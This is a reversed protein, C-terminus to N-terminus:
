KTELELAPIFNFSQTDVLGLDSIRLEPIVVLGSLSLQMNPNNLTCGCARFGDLITEAQRSVEPAPQNSMLGAIPLEVLGIVEGQRVVVQGGNVRALTNVALAMDADQTGAVIMHHSDHAVTTAVACPVNFGFGSVLGVQVRGSAQHREVVAIKALDRSIDARVEGDTVLMQLRLHRNPAQNELIGIVNAVVTEGAPAALRFDAAQSEHRV